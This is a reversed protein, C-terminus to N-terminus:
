QEVWTGIFEGSNLKSMTLEVRDPNNIIEILIHESGLLLNHNLYIRGDEDEEIEYHVATQPNNKIRLTKEPVFEYDTGDTSKFTKNKILTKFETKNM